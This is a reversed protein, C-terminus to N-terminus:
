EYKFGTINTEKMTKWDVNSEQSVDNINIVASFLIRDKGWYGAARSKDPSVYLNAPLKNKDRITSVIKEDHSAYVKVPKGKPNLLKNVMDITEASAEDNGEFMELKGNVHLMLGITMKDKKNASVYVPVPFLDRPFRPDEDFGMLTHKLEYMSIYPINYRKLMRLILEGTKNVTKMLGDAYKKIEVNTFYEDVLWDNFIESDPVPGYRDHKNKTDIYNQVDKITINFASETIFCSLNM